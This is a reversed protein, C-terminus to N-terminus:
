LCRVLTCAKAWRVDCLEFIGRGSLKRLFTQHNRLFFLMRQGEKSAAKPRFLSVRHRQQRFTLLSPRM